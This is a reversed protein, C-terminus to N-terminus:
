YRRKYLLRDLRALSIGAGVLSDAKPVVVESSPQAAEVSHVSSFWSQNGKRNRFGSWCRSLRERDHGAAERDRRGIPSSYGVM